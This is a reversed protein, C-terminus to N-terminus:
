TFHSAIILMMGIHMTIPVHSILILTPPQPKCHILVIRRRILDVVGGVSTKEGKKWMIPHPVVVLIQNPVRPGITNSFEKSKNTLGL